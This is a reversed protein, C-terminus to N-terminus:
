TIMKVMLKSILYNLGWSLREYSDYWTLIGKPFGYIKVDFVDESFEAHEDTTDRSCMAKFHLDFLLAM